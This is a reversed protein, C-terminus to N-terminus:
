RSRKTRLNWTTCNMTIAQNTRYSLTANRGRVEFDALLMQVYPSKSGPTESREVGPKISGAAGRVSSWDGRKLKVEVDPTVPTDVYREGDPGWSAHTPVTLTWGGALPFLEGGLM